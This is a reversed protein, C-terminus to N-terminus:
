INALLCSLMFSNLLIIQFRHVFYCYLLILPRDDTRSSQQVPINGGRRYKVEIDFKLCRLLLRQLRAPAEAINKKFIQELPSHDTEILTHRGLLYFEFKELGFMVALCEREFNFYRSEADTLSRSAMAVIRENGTADVQRLWAELGAQSADCQLITTTAPDPDYYSLIHASCLEEKIKDLAAQHHDEWKFRANKKTLTRLPATYEAIKASFRNLYTLLGLISSLEKANTPASINKVAELKDAAPCIRETTLTHGYFNVSQQKFQLKESNLSVNNAQTATLMNLFAVDHEEQTSGFVIIDDAIGTVNPVNRYIDDLRRQFIDQSVVIGFPLRKFRYRGFPTNFTCLLSSEHDLEIHWYGKTTDVVSLFKKGHLLPLIEDIRRSYYHERRINKNLDKPDLCLRVKKKGDSTEKVNCVISNVWDTPETVETIIDDAIMKDLEAKYLPLIHVPVTRQPHVVPKSNDILQIHYKDGPFRGIKDFCDQYEELVTSKSLSMVSAGPHAQPCAQSSEQVNVTIIGLEQALQCSIISPHSHAEVINFSASASNSKFTIKRTTNGLNTITNGGYSKLVANCPKIDLCLGLKQLDDTTLVCTDAGTDVKMPISRTDNIKVTTIIREPYSSVVDVTNESTITDLVVTIPESGEDSDGCYNTDEDDDVQLYIDQGRYDPSQAIENVQKLRKKMCVRQFHGTKWCYQCKARMAPCTDTTRHKNGCRFCGNFKFKFKHKDAAPVQCQSDDKRENASSSYPRNLSQRTDPKQKGRVSHVSGAQDGQTIAQMQAKTSEETKALDYVQQFTLSNGKSIADKRVKDSKLGFVLTDRLTEEKFAPDYGSDDVLTRAKTLFEELSMGEQKLCRLQYRSLIQNSQPKTCAEFKEFIPERKLQDEESSWTATNYIELGKDGAWLLLLRAKKDEAKNELPGNFILNCKQKFIKFRKHLDGPTTWDMSPATFKDMASM